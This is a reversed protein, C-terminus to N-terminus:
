SKGISSVQGLFMIIGIGALISLFPHTIQIYRPNHYGGLFWITYVIFCVIVISLLLDRAKDNLQKYFIISCPMFMLLMPNLINSSFIGYGANYDTINNTLNWLGLIYHLLSNGTGRTWSSHKLVSVESWFQTNFISYGMPWLPNGSAFYNRLLWPLLIIGFSISFMMIIRFYKSPQKLIIKRFIFLIAFVIAPGFMLAWLKTAGACGGMIGSIIIWRIESKAIFRLLSWISLIACFCAGFEVMGGTSLETTMPLTYFIVSSLLATFSNFYQRTLGFVSLMTAVGFLCCIIQCVIGDSLIMIHTYLVHMLGPTPWPSIPIFPFGGVKAYYKPAALHHRLSDGLTLPALSGIINTLILILLLGIMLAEYYTPRDVTNNVLESKVFFSYLSYFGILVFFFVFVVLCTWYNILNLLGLFLLVNTILAYGVGIAFLGEDLIGNFYFSFSKFVYRGTGWFAM